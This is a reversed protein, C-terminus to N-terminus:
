KKSRGRRSKPVINYRPITIGGEKYTIKQRAKKVIKKFQALPTQYRKIENLDTM